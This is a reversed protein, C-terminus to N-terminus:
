VDSSDDAVELLARKQGWPLLERVLSTGTCVSFLRHESPLFEASCVLAAHLHVGDDAENIAGFSVDEGGNIHLPLEGESACVGGVRRCTGGVEECFDNLDTWKRDILKLGVITGLESQAEFFRADCETECVEVGVYTRRLLVGEDFSEIPGDRFVEDHPITREQSIINRSKVQLQNVPEEPVIGNSRM